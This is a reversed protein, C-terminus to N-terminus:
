MTKAISKVHSGLHNPKLIKGCHRVAKGPIRVSHPSMLPTQVPPTKPHHTLSASKRAGSGEFTLVLLGKVQPVLM